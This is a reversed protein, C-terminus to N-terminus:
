KSSNVFNFSVNVVAAGGEPPDFHLGRLAGSVCGATSSLSGSPSCSASSVGGSSGVSITCSLRGGANPNGNLEAQYCARARGRAQAIVRSANNIKGVSVGGGGSVSAKPGKVKQATGANNGTGGTRSTGGIGALGQSGGAARVPGGANGDINLNGPGGKGVGANRGALNQLDGTPINSENLVGQTAPGRSGLSGLLQANIQDLKNLLSAAENTSMAAKGPKGGTGKKASSKGSGSAKAVPKKAAKDKSKDDKVDKANPDEEPPKEIPPPPPLNRISEVLGKVDAEDPLVEDAWDSYFMGVIAFHTLFSFAAIITIDWAIVGGVGMMVAAPLQPKPQVPPPPVFQFLVTTDGIVVKGRADDTLKVQYAGGQTRKGQSKLANLDNVGTQLAMRGSMNDLFNLYYENNIIEFLKFTSPLNPAVVVFMNKESSGLTVTSRQKVVREEIVRGGQVLGIRLVKPGQAMTMARMVATMQGPRGGASTPGQTQPQTMGLGGFWLQNCFNGFSRTLCCWLFFTEILHLIL